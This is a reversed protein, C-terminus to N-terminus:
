LAQIFRDAWPAQPLLARPSLLALLKFSHSGKGYAGKPQCTRTAAKLAQLTQAKSFREVGGGGPAPLANAAFGHGFFNALMAPDALFWNEMCEVMLHCDLDTASPPRSWGDRGHLHAWPQWKTAPGQQHAPAMAAEADVLLMARKGETLAICFDDYAAKRSGSAVVAPRQQIGAATIFSQFGKRLEANLLRHGGGEVYLTLSM